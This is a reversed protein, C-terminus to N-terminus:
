KLDKQTIINDIIGYDLAEQSTQYFNRQIDTKIIDLDKNVHQSLLQALVEQKRKTEEMEKELDYYQGGLQTGVSHLM